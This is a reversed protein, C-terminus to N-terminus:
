AVRGITADCNKALTIVSRREFQMNRVHEAPGEPVAAAAAPFCARPWHSLASCLPALLSPLPSDTPPCPGSSCLATLDMILSRFDQHVCPSPSSARTLPYLDYTLPPCVQV